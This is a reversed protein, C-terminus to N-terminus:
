KKSLKRKIAALIYDQKAKVDDTKTLTRKEIYSARKAAQQKELRLARKEFSSRALDKDFTSEELETIDICDVPCPEVCLLCGTCEAQFVTHMFKNSGVIADVPCAQICKTCGICEAERITVTSPQRKNAAAEELYPTADINLIQSLQNVVEVGGPPCLNIEAEGNALAEAYPKCGKYGCEECQTQPLIKDIKDIQSIM